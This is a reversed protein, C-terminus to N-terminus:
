QQFDLLCAIRAQMGLQHMRRAQMSNEGYAFSGLLMSRVTCGTADSLSHIRLLPTNGILGLVGDQVINAAEAPRRRRCVRPLWHWAALLAVIASTAAVSVLTVKFMVPVDSQHMPSTAM